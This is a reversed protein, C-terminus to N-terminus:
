TASGTGSDVVSPQGPAEQRYEGLSAGAMAGDRLLRCRCAEVHIRRLYATLRGRNEEVREEHQSIIVTVDGDTLEGEYFLWGLLQPTTQAQGVGARPAAKRAGRDETLIASRLTRALALAAIEGSGLKRSEPLTAVAQLDALAMPVETFGQGNSLRRKFEGQMALEAATPKTRPKELAEHRVYGAVAFSRGKRLATALLLPSSLLNWISCTDIASIPAFTRVDVNIGHPM